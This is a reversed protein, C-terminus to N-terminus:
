ALRRFYDGAASSTTTPPTMMMLHYDNTALLGYKSPSPTFVVPPEPVHQRRMEVKIRRGDIMLGNLREVAEAAKYGSQLSIFGYGKSAGTRADRCVQASLVPGYLHFMAMLHQDEWSDPLQVVFLNCGPPGQTQPLRLPAQPSARLTPAIKEKQVKSCALRVEVPKVSDALTLRDNLGLIANHAEVRDKMKVFGSGKPLGFADLLIFVEVVTGFTSFAAYLDEQRATKPLSGIFLKVPPVEIQESRLALREVEGSAFQVQLTGISTDLTHKNNLDQICAAAEEVSAFRVFACGKSRRESDRLIVCELVHGFTSFVGKLEQDSMSKPFRGVFLKVPVDIKFLGRAPCDANAPQQYSPMMGPQCAIMSADMTRLRSFFISLVLAHM